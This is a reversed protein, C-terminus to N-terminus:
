KKLFKSNFTSFGNSVQILYMGKSLSSIDFNFTTGSLNEKEFVTQGSLSIVKLKASNITNDFTVNIQNKAPNPYVSVKKDEFLDKKVDLSNGISLQSIFVDNQLSTWSPYLTAYNPDKDCTTLVTGNITITTNNALDYSGSVALKNNYLAMTNASATNTGNIEPHAIFKTMTFNEFFKWTPTHKSATYSQGPISLTETPYMLSSAVINLNGLPYISQFQNTFLATSSNIYNRNSNLAVIGIYQYTGNPAMPLTNFPAPNQDYQRWDLIVNGTAKEVAIDAITGRHTSFLGNTGDNNITLISTITPHSGTPPTLVIGDVTVTDGFISQVTFYAKGTNDFFFNNKSTSIGITNSNTIIWEKHWIETGSSNLKLLWFPKNGNTSRNAFYIDNNPLVGLAIAKNESYPLSGTLNYTVLTAWQCVGQPNYKAIFNGKGYLTIGNGFNYFVTSDYGFTFGTVIINDNNDVTFDDLTAYTTNPTNRQIIVSSTGNQTRKGIFSITGPTRSTGPDTVTTGGYTTQHGSSILCLLDGQSNYHLRKTTNFGGGANFSWDFSTANNQAFIFQTLLVLLLLKKKMNHKKTLLLSDTTYM